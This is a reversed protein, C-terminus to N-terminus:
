NGIGKQAKFKDSCNKIHLLMDYEEAKLAFSKEPRCHMMLEDLYIDPVNSVKKVLERNYKQDIQRQEQIFAYFEEFHVMDKGEKSFQYYMETIAGSFGCEGPYTGARPRKFIRDYNNMLPDNKLFEAAARAISDRKRNSHVITVDKLQYSKSFLMVMITDDANKPLIAGAHTVFTEFGIVTFRLTDTPFVQIRFLGQRNSIARKGSNQNLINGLPIISGDQSSILYGKLLLREPTQAQVLGFSLIFIVFLVVRM